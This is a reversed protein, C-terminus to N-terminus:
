RRIRFIHLLRAPSHRNPPHVKTTSKTYFQHIIAAHVDILDIGSRKADGIHAKGIDVARRLTARQELKVGILPENPVPFNAISRAPSVGGHELRADEALIGAIDLLDEAADFLEAAIRALGAADARDFQGTHIKAALSPAYGAPLEEPALPAVLNTAVAVSVRLPATAIHPRREFGTHLHAKGEELHVQADLQQGIDLIRQDGREAVKFIHPLHLMHNLRRMTGDVRTRHASLGEFEEGGGVSVGSDVDGFGTQVVQFLIHGIDAIHNAPLHGDGDIVEPVNGILVADLEETAKLFVVEGPGFIDKGPAIDFLPFLEVGGRCGGESGALVDVELLVELGQKFGVGQGDDVGVQEGAATHHLCFLNAVHGLVVANLHVDMHGLGGNGAEGGDMDRGGRSVEHIQFEM